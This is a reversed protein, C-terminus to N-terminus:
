VAELDGGAHLFTKTMAWSKAAADADYAFGADSDEPTTKEPRTFGHKVNEFEALRVPLGLDKLGSLCAAVNEPSSFPDAAGHLLLCSTSGKEAGSGEPDAIQPRDLSGHFSVVGRLRPASRFRALDLVAMGGLCFGIGYMSATSSVEPQELMAEYAKLIRRTHKSRDARLAGFLADREAKDFVCTGAGFADLAFAAFGMRALADCCTHVFVEQPGIATHAVLVGPLGEDGGELLSPDWAFYAELDTEGDEAKYSFSRSSVPADGEVGWPLAELPVGADFLPPMDRHSALIRVGRGVRWRPPVRAPPPRSSVPCRGCAMTTRQHAAGPLRSVELRQLRLTKRYKTRPNEPLEGPRTRASEHWLDLASITPLGRSM